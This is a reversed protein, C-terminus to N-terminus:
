HNNKRDSVKLYIDFWNVTRTFIDRVNAPSQALSHSEGGYRALQATKGQEYLSYFFQEAQTQSGRIDASGQIMLLPTEVRDVFTLPSNRDYDSPQRWPPAQQGFYELESWNDSKEHAISGYGHATPDFGGYFQTLDTIGALAVAARFRTTQTALAYVSYGGFSQGFVGLRDPDTIGLMVLKDVAPLVGKPIQTYVDHRDNRAALPMSPILVVYGRAAYLQLNYIGPLFSDLWYDDLSSVRYGGYVWVLTPYRRGPRYDPPLIVAGKLANGDADQYDILETTGWDIALFDSDLKFLERKKRGVLSIQSLFLGNRGQRRTLISGHDLDVDLEDATFDPVSPGIRGTVTNLTELETAGTDDAVSILIQSSSRGGDVPLLLSARAPFRAFAVYRASAPDLRLASTGVVATLAGDAARVFRDPAIPAAHSLDAITGDTKILVWPAVAQTDAATVRAVLQDNNAWLVAPDHPEDVAAEGVSSPGISQALGSGADAVFLPTATEFSDRRARLAIKRSDPSWGYLELPYRGNAPMTVWRVPGGGALDAFGLRHDVAWGDDWANPFRQGGEPKLAGLTALVALRKGDPSVSAALAGRFPYAPVSDITEWRDTRVDVIKLIARGSEQDRVPPADGSSDVSVTPRGGDHLDAAERADARYSRAYADILGSVAGQPLMAALLRHGDLWLFPASENRELCSHAITGHDAGGRLDLQDIPSGYRTQTMVAEDSLRTLAQSARDWVYLRVNDGGRPEAGQPATSLLALRQGDPSWTACWYGAARSVGSTIRRKEGTRTSILWVDDRSPDIEYATRGYVEGIKAPRQVVAAVWAGDPSFTAREVHQTNLVDDITLRHKKIPEPTPQSHAVTNASLALWLSSAFAKRLRGMLVTLTRNEVALPHLQGPNKAAILSLAVSSGTPTM